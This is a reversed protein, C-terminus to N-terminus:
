PISPSAQPQATRTLETPTTVVSSAPLYPTRNAGLHLNKSKFGDLGASGGVWGGIWHIAPIDKTPTLCSPRSTSYNCTTGLTLIPPAMGRSGWTGWRRPCHRKQSVTRANDVLLSMLLASYRACNAIHLTSRHNAAVYLLERRSGAMSARTTKWPLGHTTPHTEGLTRPKGQRTIETVSWIRTPCHTRHLGCPYSCHRPLCCGRQRLGPAV